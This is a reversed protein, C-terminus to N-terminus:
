HRAKRLLASGVRVIGAVIFLIPLLGGPISAEGIQVKLLEWPGWMLLVIAIALGFREIPLGFSKRVLQSGLAIVGVGVLGVRWGVELLFAIGIGGM